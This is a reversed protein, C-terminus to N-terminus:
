KRASALIAEIPYVLGRAGVYSQLLATVETVAAARTTQDTPIAAMAGYGRPLDQAAPLHVEGMEAEVSVDTFGAGDVLSRVNATDGLSHQLAFLSSYDPDFYRQWSKQMAMQGPCKRISGWAMVMLRGGRRLVRRMERLAASQDPFFMLGFACCVVDFSGDEFPM